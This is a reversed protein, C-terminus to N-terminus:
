SENPAEEAVWADLATYLKSVWRLKAARTKLKNIYRIFQMCPSYRSKPVAPWSLCTADCPGTDTTVCLPCDQSTRSRYTGLEAKEDEELRKEYDKLHTRIRQAATKRKM